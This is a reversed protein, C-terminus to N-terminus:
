FFPGIPRGIPAVNDFPVFTKIDELGGLPNIVVPVGAEHLVAIPNLGGIVIMATRGESVPIDLLPMNPRGVTLVGNLNHKIQLIKLVELVRDYAASPFERFSAGIIGSGSYAYPTIKTMGALIFLKLPDVSTGKYDLLDVFRVPIRNEMMLLGGFRSTVPIGAKLFLSNITMSCITALAIKGRPVMIGGLQDGHMKYAIRNGISLGSEFVPTIFHIARSFDKQGIITVNPIITGTESQIDMTMRYGLEDVRASVFGVKGIVDVQNLVQKGRDTLERGKRRSICRTLGERDMQLLHFRVSRPQLNLGMSSLVESIKAAGSSGGIEYLAKLILHRARTNRDPM